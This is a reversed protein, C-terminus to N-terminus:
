SLTPLAIFSSEAGDSEVVERIWGGGILDDGEYLVVAQGPTIASRSEGFDVRITDSDL